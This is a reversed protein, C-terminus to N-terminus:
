RAVPRAGPAPSAAGRRLDDVTDRLTVLPDRARFGLERAALTSDAYWFYGSMELSAEDIEMPRGLRGLVARAARVGALTLATPVTLAPGPRGTIGALAAFLRRLPWNVGGLLYRQGPRGVRMAAVIGAAVDRADVLNVGGTPAVVVPGRLAFAVDRTSAAGAGGPGLVLTPNVVVVEPGGDAAARLAVKEALIKSAYYPWRAVIEDKYSATEDFVTPRDSVAITGSTSALVVRRAGAAAAARCVNRTGEVHTRHLREADRPDRSVIGALHYVEDVGEVARAVDDPETVDGRAVEVAPETVDGRAVEVAPETVDGRAVEVAADADWPSARRCLVRILADEDSRQIRDVVHRGIFGAAGTVLVRRV